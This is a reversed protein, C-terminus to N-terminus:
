VIEWGNPGQCAKITESKQSGDELVVTQEITKCTQAAETKVEAIEGSPADTNSAQETPSAELLSGLVFGSGVGGQSILFWDSDQVKGVVSVVESAAIHGVVKYDTGPGGRVNSGSKATYNEGILDLPPVTEVKDKLVVVKTNKTKTKVQTIETKGSAGTTTNEWSQDEDEYITKLVQTEHTALDEGSLVKSFSRAISSSVSQELCYTLYDKNGSNCPLNIGAAEEVKDVGVKVAADKIKNKLMDGFQAHAPTTVISLFVVASATSFLRLM